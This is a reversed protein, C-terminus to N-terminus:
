PLIVHNFSEGISVVMFGSAWFSAYLILREYYLL